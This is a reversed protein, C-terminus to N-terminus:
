TLIDETDAYVVSLPLTLGISDLTIHGDVSDAESAIYWFKSEGRRFVEARVKQSDILVYERLTEIKRYLKFKEGRDYSETSKSLVEILIVPNVIANKQIDSYQNPGCIVMIDPYTYLGTEEVLLRQDSSFSRCTKGRLFGGIEISANEKIRNHNPTGGAMMFIEGEYYESKYDAERELELYEEPTYHSKPPANM